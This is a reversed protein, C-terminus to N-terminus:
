ALDTDVIISGLYLLLIMTHQLAPNGSQHHSIYVLWVCVWVSIVLMSNPAQHEIHERRM